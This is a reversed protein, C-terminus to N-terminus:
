AKAEEVEVVSGYWRLPLGKNPDDPFPRATVRVHFTTGDGRCAETVEDFFRHEKVCLVFAAHFAPDRFYNKYGFGFLHREEVQMLEAYAPNVDRNRGNSDCEFRAVPSMRMEAWTNALITAINDDQTDLRQELVDNRRDSAAFGQTIQEALAEFQTTNKTMAQVMTPWSTRMADDQDQRAKRMRRRNGIERWAKRRWAWIAAALAGASLALVIYDNMEAATMRWAVKDTRM